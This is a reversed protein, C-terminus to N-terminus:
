QALSRRWPTSLHRCPSARGLLCRPAAWSTLTRAFLPHVREHVTGKLHKRRDSVDSYRKRRSEEESPHALRRRVEDAQQDTLRLTSQDQQEMENLVRAADEQRQPPWTLVRDFIEKVQERTMTAHHQDQTAASRRLIDSKPTEFGGWPAPNPRVPHLWQPLAIPSM